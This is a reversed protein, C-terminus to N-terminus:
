AEWTGCLRWCRGERIGTAIRLGREFNLSHTTLGM